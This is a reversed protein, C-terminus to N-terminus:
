TPEGEPHQALLERAMEALAARLTAPYTRHHETAVHRETTRVCQLHQNLVCEDIALHVRVPGRGIVGGRHYGFAARAHRQYARYKMARFFAPTRASRPSRLRLPRATPWGAQQAAYWVPVTSGNPRTLILNGDPAFLDIDPDPSLNRSARRHKQGSSM